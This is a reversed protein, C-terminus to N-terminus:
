GASVPEPRRGRRERWGDYRAMLPTVSIGHVVISVAVATLVFTALRSGTEDPLDAHALAFALYYLSGIGRIGFWAIFGVQPRPLRAGALGLLVSVPRIVVFLLVTFLFAELSLTVTALMAGLLVVIAIEGIRELQENFELLVGALYAPAREPDTAVDTPDDPGRHVREVVQPDEPERGTAQLEIWRVALGAAFVSLFGYTGAALAAGYSLAILGLGLFEDLGVAERHTRRLYLVLRGVLFGCVAGIVLGGIGAYVVDFALWRLGNSGIDHLGLLGLGLLVFPFATGDNLGAEGTLAFRLDEADTPGTVQVDSALVPDTPALIGGLLIAAGLPLGLWLVGTTAILLVTITMSVVALRAPLHWRGGVLPDRLKLGATFLSVIVVLETLLEVLGEERTPSIDILGLWLPGVAAGIALYLLSATLPLRRLVSGALAMVILTGGAVLFWRPDTLQEV